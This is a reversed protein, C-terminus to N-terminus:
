TAGRERSAALATRQSLATRAISGDEVIATNAEDEFFNPPEGSVTEWASEDSRVFHHGLAYFRLAAITAADCHAQTDDADPTIPAPAQLAPTNPNVSDDNLPHWLSGARCTGCFSHAPIGWSDANRCDTCISKAPSAREPAQPAEQKQAALQAVIDCLSAQAAANQGNILIDLERVLRQHDAIVQEYDAVPAPAQPAAIPSDAKGKTKVAEVGNTPVDAPRWIHGCGHCLHSRHPPNSWSADPVGDLGNWELALDLHHLEPEDIHQRRCKPCHLVMGVPEADGARAASSVQHRASPNIEISRILEVVEPTWFERHPTNEDIFDAIGDRVEEPTMAADGARAEFTPQLRRVLDQMTIEPLSVVGDVVPFPGATGVQAFHIRVGQAKEAGGARAGLFPMLAEALAAAGMSHGGDVRRIEQALADTSINAPYDGARAARDAIAQVMKRLEAKAENADSIMDGSDFQGGVLSWSSAFVQAQEMVDDVTPLAPYDPTTNDTM